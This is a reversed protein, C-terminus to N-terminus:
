VQSPRTTVFRARLSELYNQRTLFTESDECGENNTSIGGGWVGHELTKFVCDCERGRDEKKWFTECIISEADSFLDALVTDQIEANLHSVRNTCRSRSCPSLGFSGAPEKAKREEEEGQREKRKREFILDKVINKVRALVSNRIVGAVTDEDEGIEALDNLLNQLVGDFYKKAAKRLYAKDDSDLHDATANREVFEDAILESWFFLIKQQESEGSNFLRFALFDHVERDQM